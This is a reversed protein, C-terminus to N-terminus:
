KNTEISVSAGWEDMMGSLKTLSEEESEFKEGPWIEFYDGSGVLVVDERPKPDQFKLKERIKQSLVIRNQSDLKIKVSNTYLYRIFLNVKQPNEDMKNKISQVLNEFVFSPRVMLYGSDHPTLWFEGELVERPNERRYAAPM